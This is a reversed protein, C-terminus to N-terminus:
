KSEEARRSQEIRQEIDLLITLPDEGAQQRQRFEDIQKPKLSHEVEALVQDLGFREVAERITFAM